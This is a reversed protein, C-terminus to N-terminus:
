VGIKM